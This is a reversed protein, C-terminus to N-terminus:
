GHNDAARTGGRNVQPLFRRGGKPYHGPASLQPIMWGQTPRAVRVFKRPTTEVLKKGSTVDKIVFAGKERRRAIYGGEGKAKVQEYLKWGRVKRPSWCKHESRPGNFRQYQGRPLCRIQYVMALSKVVEGISCAIAVADNTHSKSLGLVQILKYKTEYGYTVTVQAVGFIGRLQQVVSTKISSVHAADKLSVRAQAQIEPYGFERATQKGKRQNCPECALALNSVRNSGGRARPIIHDLQLPIGTAGCYSCRRKWKALVYERVLYGQLQGQQYELGQITTDQMKQTDFSGVEVIIQSLPLLSAGFRVSKVTAEAKSRVSPPLWGTKRRRSAWRKARYRTKRSRRARRYQRRQVLKETIDNRLHVEAQYVVQGNAPAAIGVTQSGTDVGVNVPQIYHTTEFSLQVTFPERHVVHALGKRVWYWVKKQNKTPMLPKGSAALVYIISQEM